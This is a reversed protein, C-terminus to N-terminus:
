IRSMLIASAGMSALVRWLKTDAGRARSSAQRVNGLNRVPLARVPACEIGFCCQYTAVVLVLVSRMVTSGAMMCPLGVMRPM